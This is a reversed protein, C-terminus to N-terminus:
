PRRFLLFQRQGAADPLAFPAPTEVALKFKEAERRALALEAEVAQPTKYFIVAAGPRDALLGRVDRLMRGAPGVARLLVYDFRGAWEPKRGAERAQCPVTRVNSLGLSEAFRLVADAKKQRSEIGVAEAQPNAWALPLLPFGAGCGVDAFTVGQRLLAPAALGAALSDALHLTWFERPATIRTLNLEDNVAQLEERLSSLDAPDRVAPDLGLRACFERVAPTPLHDASPGTAPDDAM